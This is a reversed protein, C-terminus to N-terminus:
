SAGPAAAKEFWRPKRTGFRDARLDEDAPPLKRRTKAGWQGHHTSRRHAVPASARVLFGIVSGIKFLNSTSRRPQRGAAPSRPPQRAARTPRRIRCWPPDESGRGDRTALCRRSGDIQTVCDHRQRREQVPRHSRRETLPCSSGLQAAGSDAEGNKRCTGGTKRNRIEPSSTRPGGTDSPRRHHDHNVRMMRATGPPLAPHCRCKAPISTKEDAAFEDGALPRGEWQHADLDLVRPAQSAFHPDTVLIWSQYQGTQAGGAVAVAAGDSGFSKRASGMPIVQRALEPAPWRSM